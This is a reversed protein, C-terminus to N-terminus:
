STPRASASARSKDPTIRGAISGGIKGKQTITLCDLGQSALFQEANEGQLVAISAALGAALCTPGAISISALGEVPWGLRPNLIHSFRRDGIIFGREYDGSTALAGESMFLTARAVDPDFPDRVGIRWPEDARGILAIDGGLNILGRGIGRGACVSAARDVAYEKAIGGFDLAMGAISFSLVPRTWALKEFGVRALVPALEEPDPLRKRRERWVSNLLGATVDFLGGSRRHADQAHDLLGATEDDVEIPAGKMAARNIASLFSDPRYRTYRQEIREVEAIAADAALAAEGETRAFLLAECPCGMAAFDFRFLRESMM